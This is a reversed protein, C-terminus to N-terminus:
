IPTVAHEHADIAAFRECLAELDAEDGPVTITHHAVSTRELDVGRGVLFGHVAEAFRESLISGGQASTEPLIAAFTHITDDRGHAVRDVTRVSDALKRGLEALIAAQKRRGLAAIPEIPVEVVSVSFLTEYRSARAAEFETDQGFARANLLGTADDIQDYLDLKDLSQELVQSSWGGLLGFVLYAFCRSLILGAFTAAGVAEIAPLRLAIYVASAAIAAILGGPARFFLFGLFVPVFLLTAVVEVTDVRRVYMIITVVTLMALGAFVLLLRARRYGITQLRDTTPLAV